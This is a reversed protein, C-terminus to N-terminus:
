RANYRDLAAQQLEVYRAAGLKQYNELFADWEDLSKAGTIFQLCNEETYTTLDALIDSAEAAEEATPTVTPMMYDMDTPTWVEQMKLSGESLASNQRDPDVWVPAWSPPMTHMRLGSAIDAMMEESYVYNGDADLTYEQGEIGYNALMFGPETFLYNFAALLIEPDKCDASITVGPSVFEKMAASSYHIEDGKNQVPLPIAALEGGAQKVPALQADVSSYMTQSVGSMETNLFSADPLWGTSSMFNQDILGDTYWRNMMELYQKVSDANDLFADHVVGDIQYIANQSSLYAGLGPSFIWYSAKTMAMPATCGYEDKFARLVAELEEYTEPVAMGLEDLWDKRVVFGNFPAQFHTFVMGLAGTRGTDTVLNKQQGTANIVELYEPMYVPVLDTLDLFYGDDIGADLGETYYAPDSMVDPLDGSTITLNYQERETGVAPTIFDFHINTRREFEQWFTSNNMDGGLLDMTRADPTTFFSYTKKEALPFQIGGSVFSGDENQVFTTDAPQGATQTSPAAASGSAPASSAGGGGCAALLSMTGAVLLALAKNKNSKM